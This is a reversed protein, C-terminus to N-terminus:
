PVQSPSYGLASLTASVQACHDEVHRVMFEDVVENVTMAGRRPHQGVQQWAPEPLTELIGLAEERSSQLSTRVVELPDAAHQAIAGLRGPDDHSRGFPTGPTAAIRQAQTAWYPLMEAVHALTSMVPWEGTQPERYLAEPPLGAITQLLRNVGNTIRTEVSALM